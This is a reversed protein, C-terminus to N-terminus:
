KFLKQQPTKSRDRIIKQAVDKLVEMSSYFWGKSGFQEMHFASFKEYVVNNEIWNELKENPVDSIDMKHLERFIRSYLEAMYVIRVEDSTKDTSDVVHDYRKIYLPDHVSPQEQETLHDVKFRNILLNIQEATYDIINRTDQDTCWERAGQVMGDTYNRINDLFQLVDEAKVKM